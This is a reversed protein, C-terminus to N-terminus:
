PTASVENSATSEKDWNVATVQYYYTTGATVATDTYTTAPYVNGPSVNSALLTKTSLGGSVTGRYINYSTAAIDSDWVLTIPAMSKVALNLPAAPPGVGCGAVAFLVLVVVTLAITKIM